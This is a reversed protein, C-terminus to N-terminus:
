PMREIEEFLDHFGAGTWALRAPRPCLPLEGPVSLGLLEAIKLLALGDISVRSKPWYLIDRELVAPSSRDAKIQEAEAELLTVLARRFAVADRAILARSVDLHPSAGGEVSREFRAVIARAEPTPFPDPQKVISHVLLYFCFDDEYEWDPHWADGSLAAVDRAVPLAGAVLADLVARTRSLALHRDDDNHELRSRRLYFRRAHGARVLNERFRGEDALDLLHCLGLGELQLILTDFVDGLPAVTPADVLYGLGDRIEDVLEEHVDALDV